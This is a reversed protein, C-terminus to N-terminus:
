NGAKYFKKNNRKGRKDEDKAEIYTITYREKIVNISYNKNKMQEVSKNNLLVLIEYLDILIDNDLRIHFDMSFKEIINGKDDSFIVKEGLKM